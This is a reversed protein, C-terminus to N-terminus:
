VVMCPWKSSVPAKWAIRYQYDGFDPLICRKIVREIERDVTTLYINQPMIITNTAIGNASACDPRLMGFCGWAIGGAAGSGSGTAFGRGVGINEM